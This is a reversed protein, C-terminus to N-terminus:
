DTVGRPHKRELIDDEKKQVTRVQVCIIKRVKLDLTYNQVRIIFM